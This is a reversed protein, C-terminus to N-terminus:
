GSVVELREVKRWGRPLVAGRQAREGRYDKLEAFKLTMKREGCRVILNQDPSVVAIAALFEERSEVKKSSLGFIKNGKGRPLEPLDKVPFALMKGDSSVACLLADESKPVPSPALVGSKEPVKLVAKGARNRSHLEELKVVFGYGADSAVVWREEPDGIMVGAFTAGEPPDIRGSLPEGQGRASPLTHALLSYARGTSDLFVAQQTSKGRAASQFADGTKYSLTAPDIDHGKAARVWGRESLVVTVPESAVLETENIAQAAAREVIRSRRDDGFEKADAELEDRVLKRLKAKSKLIKELDEQEDALEKQEGRIKM